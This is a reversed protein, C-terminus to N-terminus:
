RVVATRQSAHVLDHTSALEQSDGSGTSKLDLRGHPQDAREEYAPGGSYTREGGDGVAAFSVHGCEPAVALNRRPHKQAGRTM